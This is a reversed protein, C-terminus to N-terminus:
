GQFSSGIKMQLFVRTSSSFHCGPEKVGMEDMIGRVDQLAEMELFVSFCTWTIRAIPVTM